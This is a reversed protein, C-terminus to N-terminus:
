KDDIKETTYQVTFSLAAKPLFYKKNIIVNLISKQQGYKNEIHILRKRLFYNLINEERTKRSLEPMLDMTCLLGDWAKM